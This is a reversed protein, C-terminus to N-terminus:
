STAPEFWRRGVELVSCREIRPAIRGVFTAVAAVRGPHTAAHPQAEYPVDDYRSALAASSTDLSLSM